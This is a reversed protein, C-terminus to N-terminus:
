ARMADRLVWEAEGTMVTRPVILLVLQTKVIPDRINLACQAQRLESLEVAENPPAPIEHCQIALHERVNGVLDRQEGLRWTVACGVVQHHCAHTAPRTAPSLHEIM